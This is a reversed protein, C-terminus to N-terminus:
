TKGVIAYMQYARKDSRPLALRAYNTGRNVHCARQFWGVRQLSGPSFCIGVPCYINVVHKEYNLVMFRTQFIILFSAFYKTPFMYM